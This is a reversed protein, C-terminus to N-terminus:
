DVPQNDSRCTGRDQFDGFIKDRKFSNLPPLFFIQKTEPDNLLIKFNKLIVNKIAHNQPRITPSPQIFNQQNRRETINATRDRPRNRPRPTQRTIASDTANKQFVPVNGRM